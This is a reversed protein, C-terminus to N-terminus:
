MTRASYQVPRRSAGLNMSRRRCEVPMYSNYASAYLDAPSVYPCHGAFGREMESMMTAVGRGSFCKLQDNSRARIETIPKLPDGSEDKVYRFTPISNFMEIVLDVNFERVAQVFLPLSSAKGVQQYSHLLDGPDTMGPPPICIIADAGLKKAQAAYRGTELLDATKSQVGIVIATPGGHAASLLAETGRTRDEETLTMWGSGM